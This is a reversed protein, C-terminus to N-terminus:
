EREVVVSVRDGDAVSKQGVVILREGAEIGSEIVVM